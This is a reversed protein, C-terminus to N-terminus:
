NAKEDVTPASSSASLVQASGSALGDLVAFAEALKVAHRAIKKLRDLMSEDAALSSDSLELIATSHKQAETVSSALLEAPSMNTIVINPM